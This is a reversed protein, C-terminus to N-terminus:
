TEDHMKLSTNYASVIINQYFPFSTAKPFINKITKADYFKFLGQKIV